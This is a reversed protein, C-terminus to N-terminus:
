EEPPDDSGREISEGSETWLRWRGVRVGDEYSGSAAPEGDEDWLRWPGQRRGERYAGEAAKTGNENWHAWAGQKFGRISPGRSSLEGNEYWWSSMGEGRMGCFVESRPTGDRYWAKWVGTPEGYKYFREFEQIGDPFWASHRGDAVVKGGPLILVEREYLLQETESLYQREVSARPQNPDPLPSASDSTKVPPIFRAPAESRCAATFAMLLFALGVLLRCQTNVDSRLRLTELRNM